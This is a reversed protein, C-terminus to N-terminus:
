LGDAQANAGAQFHHDMIYKGLTGSDNGFGTPFRSSVSNLLIFNTSMASANLFIIRAYYETTQHTKADLVRVGLARQRKEDYLVESVISDPRVTLRNTQRAAPLTASLTSFYGGYPCVQACKNRYQCPG